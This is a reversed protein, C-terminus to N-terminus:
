GSCKVVVTDYEFSTTVHKLAAKDPVKVIVAPYTKVMIYCLAFSYQVCQMVFVILVKALRTRPYLRAISILIMVSMGIGAFAMFSNKKESGNELTITELAVNKMFWDEQKSNMNKSSIDVEEGFMHEEHPSMLTAKWDFRGGYQLSMDNVRLKKYVGEPRKGKIDFEGNDCAEGYAKAVSKIANILEQTGYHNDPHTTTDGVLWINDETGVKLKNLGHHMVSLYLPIQDIINGEANKFFVRVTVKGSMGKTTYTINRYDVLGDKNVLKSGPIWFESKQTFGSFQGTALKDFSAPHHSHGHDHGTWNMKIKVSSNRPGRIAFKSSFDTEYTGFKTGLSHKLPMYIRQEKMIRTDGMYVFCDTDKYHFTFLNKKQTNGFSATVHVQGKFASAAPYYTVEDGKIAGTLKVIIKDFFGCIMQNGSDRSTGSGNKTYSTDLKVKQNRPGKVRLRVPQKWYDEPGALNINYESSGSSQFIGVPTSDVVRFKKSITPPKEKNSNKNKYKFVVDLSYMGPMTKADPEYTIKIKKGKSDKTAPFEGTIRGTEYKSTSERSDLELCKLKMESRYFIIDGPEQITFEYKKKKTDGLDVTDTIVKCEYTTAM